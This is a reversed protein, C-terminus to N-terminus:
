ANGVAMSMASAQTTKGVLMQVVQYALWQAAMQGLANVVSRAMSEAMGSVAGGLTEADFVMAEFASGFQGAMNEIVTGSLEDFSQLSEEAAALYREWYSGTIELMEEDQAAQLDRIAQNKEEETHISSALIIERRKAYSAAIQEEESGLSEVISIAEANLEQQREIAARQAEMAGVVKMAADARLLDAETAGEARLSYLKVDDASMGWTKAAREIASVQDEIGKALREADEAAKNTEKGSSKAAEGAKVRADYLEALRLIEEKEPQSLQDALEGNELQYRLRAAEGVQGYLAAQEKLRAELKLFQESAAAPGDGPASIVAQLRELDVRYAQAKESLGEFEARATVLERNWQEAKASNPYEDLQKVLYEVRAAAVKAESETVGLADNITMVAEAARAKGLQDFSHRLGDIELALSEATEKSEDGRMVFYTLALGALMVVGAPGGLLAMGASAARGAVALTTLRAATVQSVGAMTALTSQYRWAEAQALIFGATTAAVSGVLRASLIGAVIAAAGAVYEFNDALTMVGGAIVEVADSGESMVGFSVLASNNLQVFADGITTAMSDAEDRLIGLQGTLAPLIRETTLQGEAAMARLEIVSVGLGDALADAVRGGTNMVTNFNEGRLVGDALAKSLANTVSAAREQKAGSVVLGLALAETLDLQQQTSFGLADLSSANLLYAESTLELSSYSRRAIGEIQEMIGAADGMPGVALRIRGQMDVWTDSYNKLQSLSLGVGLAGLLGTVVRSTRQVSSEVDKMRRDATRAAQDMGQEFGGIKAILDLTLTGLSRNSM